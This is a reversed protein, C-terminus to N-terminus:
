PVAQPSSGGTRQATFRAPQGLPRLMYIGQEPKSLVGKAVLRGLITYLRTCYTSIRGPDYGAAILIERIEAPSRPEGDLMVRTIADGLPLDKLKITIM